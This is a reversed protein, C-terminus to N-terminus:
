GQPYFMTMDNFQWKRVHLLSLWRIGVPNYLTLKPAVDHKRHFFLPLLLFYQPPSLFSLCATSMNDGIIIYKNEKLSVFHEDNVLCNVVHVLQQYSFFLSCAPFSINASLIDCFMWTKTKGKDLPPLFEGTLYFYNTHTIWYAVCYM